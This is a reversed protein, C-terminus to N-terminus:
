KRSEAMQADFQEETPPEYEPRNEVRSLPLTLAADELEMLADVFLGSRRAMESDLMEKVFENVRKLELRYIRRYTATEFGPEEFGTGHDDYRIM